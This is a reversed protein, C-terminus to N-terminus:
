VINEILSNTGDHKLQLDAANGMKLIKGDAFLMHDSVISPVSINVTKASGDLFFYTEIGGSGDDCQFIVDRDNAANGIVLDGTYNYFYGHSGDHKTVLDASNGFGAQVGDVFRIEKQATTYGVSGDLTLYATNGGSGDDCELILDKDNAKQRIYYDGSLNDLYSNTGNHYLRIDNSTGLSIISNDEWKTYLATTAGGDYTALSGDLKFYNTVGGNGDDCQFIIDKDDAKQRINLNGTSNDIYSQDSVHYLSLDGSAGLQVEKNDDFRMRRQVTTYGLGGDLTLYTTVGGSGDDCQFIIDADVRDNIISLNGTQNTINFNSGDHYMSIDGDTGLRLASSDSLKIDHNFIATGADSMDLTLATIDVGGDTGKFIIDADDTASDIVIDGATNTIEM